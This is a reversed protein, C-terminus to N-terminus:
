LIVEREQEKATRYDGSLLASIRRQRRPSLYPFLSVLVAEAKKGHVQWRWSPKYGRDRHAPPHQRYVSGVGVISHFWRVPEEDTMNLTALVYRTPRAKGNSTVSACGEGEFLGAAWEVGRVM